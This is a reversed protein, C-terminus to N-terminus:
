ANQVTATPIQLPDKLILPQINGVNVQGMTVAPKSFDVSYVMFGIGFIGTITALAGSVNTIFKAVTSDSSEAIQGSIWSVGACIIAFVCLGLGVKFHGPYRIRIGGCYEMDEQSMECYHRPM